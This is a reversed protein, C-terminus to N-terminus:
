RVSSPLSTGRYPRGTMRQAPDNAVSSLLKAMGAVAAGILVHELLYIGSGTSLLNNGGLYIATILGVFSASDRVAKLCIGLLIGTILQSIPYILFALWGFDALVVGLGFSPSGQDLLFWDPFYQLALRFEGFVKPKEEWLVRPVKPIWLTEATLQGGYSGMTGDQVVLAGNRNYDSYQAVTLLLNTTEGRYNLAFLYAFAILGVIAYVLSRSITFLKGNVHVKVIIYIAFLVLFSGKSGKLIFLTFLTVYFAVARSKPSASTLFVIYALFGLLSSGYTNVGYGTRTLEYIRRPETVYERFELLVPLYLVTAGLLLVWSLIGHGPVALARERGVAPRMWVVGICFAAFGFFSLSYIVTMSEPSYTALDLFYVIPELVFEIIFKLAFPMTVINLVSGFTKSVYLFLIVSAVGYGLFLFLM